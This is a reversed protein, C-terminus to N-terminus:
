LTYSNLTCHDNLEAFKCVIQLQLIGAYWDMVNGKEAYLLVFILTPNNSHRSHKPGIGDGWGCLNNIDTPHTSLSPIFFLGYPQAWWLIIIQQQKRPFFFPFLSLSLSSFHSWYQQAWRPSLLKAFNCPNTHQSLRRMEVLQSSTNM